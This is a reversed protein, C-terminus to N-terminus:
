LGFMITILPFTTAIWPYVSPKIPYLVQKNDFFDIEVSLIIEMKFVLMFRWNIKPLSQELLKMTIWWCRGEIISDGHSHLVIPKAKYGRNRTIKSVQQYGDRYAIKSCLSARMNEILKLDVLKQRKMMIVWSSWFMYWPLLRIGNLNCMRRPSCNQCITQLLIQLLCISYFVTFKFCDLIWEM